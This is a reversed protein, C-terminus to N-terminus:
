EHQKRADESAGDGEGFLSPQRRTQAERELRAREAREIKPISQAPTPLEEPPTGGLEDVIFRRVARGVTFHTANADAKNDVGDRRLKAEAQTIRFWNAALEESGMWDLVREGRALGKRAAIDRAKEGAYLGMYGHDQFIAFDRSTVIGAGTVTDALSRNKEAIEGRLLQRRQDEGLTAAVEELRQAGVQALWQRVPEAKPSPVSQVIRLMTEVDAADTAYKKGDPALMKLQVIIAYLQSFGEDDHLKRKLDSWYRRPAASDTLVAIVDIVSFFWRGEHWQRRILRSASGDGGAAFPLLAHDGSAGGSESTQEEKEPEQPMAINQDDREDSM